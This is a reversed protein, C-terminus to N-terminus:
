HVELTKMISVLETALKRMKALRYEASDQYNNITDVEVLIAPHEADDIYLRTFRAKTTPWVPHEGFVSYHLRYAVYASVGCRKQHYIPKAGNPIDYHLSVMLTAPIQTRQHLPVVDDKTRTMVVDFPASLENVLVYKLTLATALTADAERLGNYVVGPYKGGHGPDIVLRSM